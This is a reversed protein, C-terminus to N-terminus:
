FISYGGDVVIENGTHFVMTPDALFAAVEHFDDPEGWRRAPTRSTTAMMVREDQRIDHLMDTRTWGPVLINVRVGYRALEVALTRGLGLLGNKTTAYAAQRPGGFRSIMSSFVVLSGGEGREVFHRAAARTALFPGDLNTRLIRHWDELATDLFPSRARSGQTRSSATLRATLACRRRWPQQSPM